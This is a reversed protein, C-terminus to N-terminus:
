IKYTSLRFSNTFYFCSFSLSLSFSFSFSVMFLFYFPLPVGFEGPMIKDIYWALPLYAVSYALMVALLAALNLGDDYLNVSM